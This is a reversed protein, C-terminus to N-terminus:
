CTTNILNFQLQVNNYHTHYNTWIAEQYNGTLVKQSVMPKFDLWTARMNECVITQGERSRCYNALHAFDIKKSSCKYSQGGFQYPPDIFWTAKQNEIETYDAQLIQWHRIKYLQSAIKGITYNMANPRDRLRTTAAERPGTFGFGVLFGTLLREEDCSYVHDNINEGTKFRRMGLIDNPSCLQLWKWIKVIVDYKDVLLVDRDFYQLSYRATGCFPEIIKDHIPRPYLHAINTKSGYYSWM